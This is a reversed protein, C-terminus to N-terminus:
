YILDELYQFKNINNGLFSCNGEVINVLAIYYKIIWNCEKKHKFVKVIKGSSNFGWKFDLKFQKIERNGDIFTLPTILGLLSRAIIKHLFGSFIKTINKKKKEEKLKGSDLIDIYCPMSSIQCAEAWEILSIKGLTIDLKVLEIPSRKLCEVLRERDQLAGLDLSESQSVARVFLKRDRWTLACPSLVNSLKSHLQLSTSPNQTLMINSQPKSPILLISFIPHM